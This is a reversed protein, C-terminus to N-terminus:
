HVRLAFLSSWSKMRRRTEGAMAADGTVEPIAAVVLIAEARTVEVLIVGVPTAAAVRTVVVRIAAVLIVEVTVGEATAAM